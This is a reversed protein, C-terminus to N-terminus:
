AGIYTFHYTKIGRERFGQQRIMNGGSKMAGMLLREEMFQWHNNKIMAKYVPTSTYKAMIKISPFIKVMMASTENILKMGLGMGQYDPHVVTRNSHLIKRTNKRHPTYNAFCQFGIQDQGHFLGFTYIEGGPLRESLYHYKSFYKWTSRDVM